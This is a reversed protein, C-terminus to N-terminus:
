HRHRPWRKLLGGITDGTKAAVFETGQSLLAPVPVIALVSLVFSPAFVLPVCSLLSVPGGWFSRNTGM